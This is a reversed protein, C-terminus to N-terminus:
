YSPFWLQTASGDWCLKLVRGTVATSAKGINGGSTSTTFNGTPIINFCLGPTWGAPVNFTTIASTGSIKFTQAPITVTASSGSAIATGYYSTPDPGDTRMWKGSNSPCDFTHRTAIEVLPVYALATRTCTGSPASQVFATSPGAWVTTGAQHTARLTQRVGRIVHIFNTGPPDIAIAEFMESDILINKLNSRNPGPATIGANNGLVIHTNTATIANTLATQNILTQAPLPQGVFVGVLLPWLIVLIRRKM